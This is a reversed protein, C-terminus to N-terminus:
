KRSRRSSHAQHTSLLVIAEVESEYVDFLTSLKSIALVSSVRTTLNVLVIVAGVM